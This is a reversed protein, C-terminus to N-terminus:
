GFLSALGQVAEEEKKEEKVEKKEEKADPATKDGPAVQIQFAQSQAKSLIEGIDLGKLASVLAKVQAADVEIDIAKVLKTLNEESVEKGSDYLMLAAYILNM